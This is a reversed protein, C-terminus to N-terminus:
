GSSVRTENCFLYIFSTIVMAEILYKEDFDCDVWRGLYDINISGYIGINLENLSSSVGSLNLIYNKNAISIDRFPLLSFRSTKISIVCNNIVIQQLKSLKNGILKGKFLISKKYKIAVIGKGFDFTCLYDDFRVANSSFCRLLGFLKKDLIELSARYKM